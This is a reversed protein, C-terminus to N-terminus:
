GRKGVEDSELVHKLLIILGLRLLTCPENVAHVASPSRCSMALSPRAPRFIYWAHSVVNTSLVWKCDNILEICKEDSNGPVKIITMVPGFLEERAIKMDTTVGALVQANLVWFFRM